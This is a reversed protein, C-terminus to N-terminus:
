QSLGKRGSNYIICAYSGYPSPGQGKKEEVSGEHKKFGPTLILYRSKFPLDCNIMDISLCAVDLAYGACSHSTILFDINELSELLNYAPNIMSGRKKATSTGHICYFSTHNGKWSIEANVPREFYPIRLRECVDKVPDFGIIKKIREETCGQHAWLIKHAIPLLKENLEDQSELIIFEKHGKDRIEPIGIIAGNLIVFVDPHSRIWNIYSGFREKDFLRTGLHCEAIQAIRIGRWDLNDPFTILIISDDTPHLKPTWVKKEVKSPTLNNLHYLYVKDGQENRFSMLSFKKIEKPLIKPINKEAIQFVSAIEGVTKQEKLFELLNKEPIKKGNKGNGRNKAM